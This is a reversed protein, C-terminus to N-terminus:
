KQMLNYLEFIDGAQNQNDEPETITYLIDGNNNIIDYLFKPGSACCFNHKKRSSKKISGLMSNNM